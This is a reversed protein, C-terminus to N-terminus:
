ERMRMKIKASEVTNANMIETDVDKVAWPSLTFKQSTLSWAKFLTQTQFVASDTLAFLCFFFPIVNLSVFPV